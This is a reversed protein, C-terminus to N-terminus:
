IPEDGSLELSKISLLAKLLLQDNSMRVMLEKNWPFFLFLILGIKNFGSVFLRTLM